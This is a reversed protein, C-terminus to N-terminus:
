HQEATPDFAGAFLMTNDKIRRLLFLFPRNAVFAFTTNEALGGTMEAATAAAAVTGKEDVNLRVKQIARGVFLEAGQTTLATFDARDPDFAAQVGVSKLADNLEFRSEVEFRPLDIRGYSPAVDRLSPWREPTDLLRLVAAAGGEKPMLVDLVYRGGAYPMAAAELNADSKYAFHEEVSMFPIWAKGNSGYFSQGTTLKPDFPHLWVGDFYLANVAVLAATLPGTDLIQRIKGGTTDAVWENIVRSGDAERVSVAASQHRSAALEAFHDSISLPQKVFVATAFVAEDGPIPTSAQSARGGLLASLEQEAPGKAGDRLLQLVRRLSEPSFAFTKFDEQACLRSTIALANSTWIDEMPQGLAHGAVLSDTLAVAILPAVAFVSSGTM